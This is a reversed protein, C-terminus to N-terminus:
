FGEDQPEQKRTTGMAGAQKPSRGIFELRKKGRLNDPVVV